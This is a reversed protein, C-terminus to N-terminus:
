NKKYAYYELQIACQNYRNLLDLYDLRIRYADSLQTIFETYGIDEAKYKARSIAMIADAHDLAFSQYYHLRIFLNDLELQKIEINSNQILEAYIDTSDAQDPMEASYKDIEYIALMSDAPVIQYGAFLYQRILNQSITIENYAVAAETRTTHYLDLLAYTQTLDEEGAKYRLSAIRELDVLVKEFDTLIAYKHIRYLLTYWTSKITESAPEISDTLNPPTNDSAIELADNLTLVRAASEQGCTLTVKLFFIIVAITRM